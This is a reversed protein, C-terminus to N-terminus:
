CGPVNSSRVNCNSERASVMATPPVRAFILLLARDHEHMSSDSRALASGWAIECTASNRNSHDPMSMWARM